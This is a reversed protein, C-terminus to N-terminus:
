NHSRKSCRGGGSNEKVRNEMEKEKQTKAKRMDSRTEQESRKAAGEENKSRWALLSGHVFDSLHTMYKLFYGERGKDRREAKSSWRMREAGLIQESM